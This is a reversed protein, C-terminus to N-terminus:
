QLQSEWNCYFAGSKWLGTFKETPFHTAVSPYDCSTAESSVSCHPFSMAVPPRRPTGLSLCHNQLCATEGALVSPQHLGSRVKPPPLVFCGGQLTPNPIGCETGVVHLGNM